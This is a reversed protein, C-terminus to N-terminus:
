PAPGNVTVASDVATVGVTGASDAVTVATGKGVTVVDAGSSQTINLTTLGGFSTSTDVTEGASSAINLVEVSNVTVGGAPWPWCWRHDNINLTDTGTGGNISDLATLTATGGVQGNITDNGATGNITDVGATLNFTVGTIVINDIANEANTVSCPIPVHVSGIVTQLTALDTADGLKVASYYEAVTTKNNLIAKATQYQASAAPDLGNLANMAAVVVSAKSAGSNLKSVIFDTATADNQLGLPTLFKAAFEASTQFGPNQSTYISTQALLSALTSISRGNSEFLTDIQGLYVAGPAANFMLTTLEIISTRETATLSM